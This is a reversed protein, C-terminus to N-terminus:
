PLVRGELHEVFERVIMAPYMPLESPHLRRLWRNLAVAVDVWTRELVGEPSGGHVQREVPLLWCLRREGQVSAQAEQYRTVQERYAGAGVKAELWVTLNRRNLSGFVVELDLREGPRVRKQTTVVLPGDPRIGFWNDVLARAAEPAAEFTAALAETLRDERSDRDATATYRRLRRFL